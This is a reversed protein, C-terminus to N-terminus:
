NEKDFHIRNINYVVNFRVGTTKSYITSSRVKLKITRRFFTLLQARHTSILLPIEDKISFIFNSAESCSLSPTLKCLRFLFIFFGPIYREASSRLIISVDKPFDKPPDNLTIRVGDGWRVGELDIARTDVVERYASTPDSWTLEISKIFFTM